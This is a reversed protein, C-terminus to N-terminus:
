SSFLGILDVVLDTDAKSTYGVRNEAGIQTFALVARTQGAADYNLTSVGPTYTADPHASLWGPGATDTATVNQVLAAAPTPPSFQVSSTVEATLRDFPIDVRTDISRTSVVFSFRGATAPAAASGTFYGLVDVVVDGVNLERLNVDGSGDAPVVIMNARTEDASVNVSSTGTYEGAGPYAGVWGAGAAPASIAGVSLVYASISAGTPFGGRATDVTWTDGGDTYQNTAGAPERTDALRVSPLPIFRGAATADAAPHFAGMVDIVVRAATSAEVLFRGEADVPVIAANAAVGSGPDVNVTSTAPRLGRPMWLRLYGPASDAITVNVLAATAGAPLQTDVLRTSGAALRPLTGPEDATDYARYPPNATFVTPTAPTVAPATTPTIARLGEGIAVYYLTARGDADYGFVADTIGGAGTAFPADYDVTGGAPLQWVRGTGGDGFLYTGDFGAPWVGAPVFAGATIFTGLERGYATVPDIVGAPPGDCPTTDGQPCPGERDPWGFDGAAGENVEEYTGQGVDNIFFRTGGAADRDFAMRYPNRVGWAFIEACPTTPTAATNGRTACTAVGAEGLLPNGPAPAGDTTIRLVKGNLLSLDQAADNSGASGSDGRPDRGADGVGVYVFGDGGVEVAGGNHNGNVSSINDLLVVESAPDVAVDGGPLTFRSLRNVCGGPAGSAARTYYVYLFGNSLFAPDHAVGLLGREGGDCVDLTLRDVFAGDPTGVNLTGGQELVILRGNPLWEVTTPRDFEAVMADAFGSPVTAALAPQAAPALAAVATFAASVAATLAAVRAPRRHV